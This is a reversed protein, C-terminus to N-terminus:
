MVKSWDDLSSSVRKAWSIDVISIGFLLIEWFYGSFFSKRSPGWWAGMFGKDASSRTLFYSFWSSISEPRFLVLSICSFSCASNILALAFLCPCSGWLFLSLSSSLALSKSDTSLEGIEFILLSYCLSPLILWPFFAAGSYDDYSRLSASSASKVVRKLFIPPCSSLNSECM